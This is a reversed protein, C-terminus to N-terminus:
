IQCRSSRRRWRRCLSARTCRCVSFSCASICRGTELRSRCACARQSRANSRPFRCKQRSDEAAASQGGGFALASAAGDAEKVIRPLFGARRCVNILWEGYNPYMRSLGIFPEEKLLPLSIRPQNAKPHFKPLALSVRYEILRRIRLLQLIPRDSPVLLGLAIRGELLATEQSGSDMEVCDVVIGPAIHRWLELAKGL